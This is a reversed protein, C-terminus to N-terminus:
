SILGKALFGSELQMAKEPDLPANPDPHFITALLEIGDILRPGPRSFYSAADVVYMSPWRSLARRWDNQHPGIQALEGVTRTTSYGCPMVLILDPQAEEVEQWTTQRSPTGKASLVDDGGALEVMQPVWHGALYLPALWELCVVRPRPRYAATRTQIAELRRHLSRILERGKVRKGAADAIREIDLLVDELSTPSLIVMRPPQPLAQIARTLEDPTVACVHCLDQTLILDPQAVHFAPANLRYLPRGAAVMSKVERDIDASLSTGQGVLSEVLVPINALSPPFDCEHSIGVLEDALGLAAVVETAGPVFSCIKM